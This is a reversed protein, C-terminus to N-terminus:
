EGEARERLKQFIDAGFRREIERRMVANYAAVEARLPQSDIPGQVVEWAVGCESKLLKIFDIQQKSYPLPPFEKQKLVGNAVDAEAAQTGKANAEATAEAVRARRAEECGIVSAFCVALVGIGCIRQAM